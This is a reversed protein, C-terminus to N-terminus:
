GSCWWRLGLAEKQTKIFLAGSILYKVKKLSIAELYM